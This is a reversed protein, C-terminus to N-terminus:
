GNVFPLAEAAPGVPGCSLELPVSGNESVPTVGAVDNVVESEVGYGRALEVVIPLPDLPPVAPKGVEDDDSDNPVLLVGRDILGAGKVSVLGLERGVPVSEPALELPVSGNEPVANVSVGADLGATDGGYGSGLEVMVPPGLPLEAPPELVAAPVPPDDLVEGTSVAVM